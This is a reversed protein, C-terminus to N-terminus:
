AIIKTTAAQVASLPLWLRKMRPYFIRAWLNLWSFWSINAWRFNGAIRYVWECRSLKCQEQTQGETLLQIGTDRQEAGHADQCVARSHWEVSPENWHPGGVSPCIWQLPDLTCELYVHIIYYWHPSTNWTFHTGKAMYCGTGRMMCYWTVGGVCWVTDHSEGSHSAPSTSFLSTHKPCARVIAMRWLFGTYWYWLGLWCLVLKSSYMSYLMM